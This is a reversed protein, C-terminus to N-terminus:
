IFLKLYILALKMCLSSIFAVLTTIPTAYNTIKLQSSNEINSLWNQKNKLQYMTYFPTLIKIKIDKFCTNFPNLFSLRVCTIIFAKIILFPKGFYYIAVLSMLKPAWPTFLNWPMLNLAVFVCRLYSYEM